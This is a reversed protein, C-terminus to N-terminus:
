AAVVAREARAALLAQISIAPAPGGLMFSQARDCGMARLQALQEGTEVGEAVARMGLGHALGVISEVLTRTNDAGNMRQVFKRDIKLNDIPLEELYSLSSYGTGFDDLSVSVGLQKLEKLQLVTERIDHMIVSETVELDLHSAELGTERLTAAVTEALDGRAFQVASTNVAVQLNGYGADRWLKGQRCADRLVRAGIPVILGSEEAIPILVYPAVPGFKPNDWRVLAELGAVRGTALDFQPQYHVSIEDRELAHHLETEIALRRSAARSLEPNTLQIRRKGQRKAAYLASDAAGQLALLDAGDRPYIAIGISAGLFVENGKVSFPASLTELLREAVHVADEPAGVDGLVLTFRDGGCRSLTESERLCGAMREAALRILTDGALHGLTDNIRKFRDLDVYLLAAMSSQRRARALLQQFRDEFVSRNPLGTLLDHTAQHALKQEMRKRETVDSLLGEWYCKGDREHVNVARSHLWIWQGGKNLFRYEIDYPDRKELVARYAATVREQDEPHIKEMWFGPACIEEPTYGSLAECNSSVFVPQAAADAVWVVDPLNAVLSRYKEESKRLAERDRRRRRIDRAIGSSGVVEGAANRVPSMTLSIEMEGGDRNVAVTELQSIIEGNRIRELLYSIEILGGAPALMSIPKGLIEWALYGYLREAGKNWSLIAGDLAAGFIADDASDVISELLARAEQAQVRATVDRMIAARATIQGDANRIPCASISIDVRKGEKTLAVAEFQGASEGRALTDSLCKLNARQDGPALISVPKGVVEEARYGYLREAGRNWSLIIGEPTSSMIADESSEVISALFAKAGNAAQQATMDRRIAIYSHVAGSSDRVPAVTIEEVYSSGDKRRNTAEGRWVKGTEVAERVQAHVGAGMDPKGRRPNHGIVEAASYGTMRTYAPNVYQITGERDTIVVADSAEDIAGVLGAREIQAGLDRASQAHRQAALDTQLRMAVYAAVTLALALIAITAAPSQLANHFPGIENALRYGFWAVGGALSVRILTGTFRRSPLGFVAATSGLGVTSTSTSTNLLM